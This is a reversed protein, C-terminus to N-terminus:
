AQRTSRTLQPATSRRYTAELPGPREVYVPRDIVVPRPRPDFIARELIALARLSCAWVTPAVVVTAWVPGFLTRLVAVAVVALVFGALVRV